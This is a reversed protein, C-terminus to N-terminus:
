LIELSPDLAAEVQERTFVGEGDDVFECLYEQRFWADTRSEREEDLFERPYRPCETAPVALRHWRDGGYAWEEYFFGKKGEPTGLIWLDGNSVALVPRMANYLLDPVHSAEEVFLMSAASFGRVTPAVGPLGVIRSGNPFLISLRNKGDGRVRIGLHEVLTEAKQLFEGSQRQGPSVIVILSRKETWARHVAKAAATTSKGWQRACALLVRKANTRLVATQQPDPEFGLRERAFLAPDEWSPKVAARPQYPKFTM